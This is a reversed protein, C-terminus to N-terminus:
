DEPSYGAAADASAILWDILDLGESAAAANWAAVRERLTSFSVHELLTAAHARSSSSSAAAARVPTPETDAIADVLERYSWSEAAAKALWREQDPDPKLKAVALHHRWSLDQRRVPEPVHGAVYAYQRVTVGALELREVVERFRAGYGGWEGKVIWDGIWFKSAEDVALVKSGLEEWEEVTLKRDPIRLATSTGVVGDGFNLGVTDRRVALQTM